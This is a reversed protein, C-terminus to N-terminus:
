SIILDTFEFKSGDFLGKDGIKLSPIVLLAMFSLTMFPAKLVSGFEYVKRNLEEYKQAVSYADSNTMIGGINLGQVIIENGCVAALGGKQKIVYNIAGVIDEDDVGVCIINHSDHAISSALAGRNLGFGRIFGVVPESERYRNLVVIKLIDNDVDVKLIGNQSKLLLDLRNTVLEGDIAEIVKVYSDNICKVKIKEPDIKTCHFNNAPKVDITDFLVNNGDFVLNGNIYTSLVNFDDFNDIVILDAPDNERLLGVELGYHLVPNVTASRLLNFINLNKEFGRKILKDIHGKVLDDPHIDDTCIMVNDPFMDILPFLAEFNKAASGERIQVMMGLGIKEKAEEITFCEHDTSIGAKVYKELDTGTLGPAHGDIPKNYDRAISLKKGVESDDYIVGPFNMMESLFKVEKNELLIQVEEPGLVAGSTEFETAPVCSPAGFNFKVPVSKGNDIMMKVGEMGLVNAIEHPDSVTAVTGYRVAARAFESPMLMSSEIHVHSDVLGPLIYVDEVDNRPLIRVIKGGSIEIEGRFFTRNVVDAIKGNITIKSQEM